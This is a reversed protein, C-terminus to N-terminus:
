DVFMGGASPGSPETSVELPECFRLRALEDRWASFQHLFYNEDISRGNAAEEGKLIDMVDCFAKDVRDLADKLLFPNGFLNSHSSRRSPPAERFDSKPYVRGPNERCPPPPLGTCQGPFKADAEGMSMSSDKFGRRPYNSTTAAPIVYNNGRAAIAM